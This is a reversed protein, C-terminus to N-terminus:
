QAPQRCCITDINVTVTSGTNNTADCFWRGANGFGAYGITSSRLTIGGPSTPSYCGGGTLSYGTTCLGSTSGNTVGAALTFTGSAETRICDLAIPDQHGAWGLLDIVVHTNRSAYAYFGGVISDNNATLVFNAINQSYFNMSASTPPTVPSHQVTLFDPGGANVPVVTVQLLWGDVNTSTFSGCGAANGGQAAITAAPGTAEWTRWVPGLVGGGGSRTDVIRCPTIVNIKWNSDSAHKASPKSSASSLVAQAESLSAASLAASLSEVSQHILRQGFERRWDVANFSGGFQAAAEAEFKDALQNIVAARQALSAMNAQVAAPSAVTSAAIADSAVGAKTEACASGISWMM